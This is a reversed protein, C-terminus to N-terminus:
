VKREYRIRDHFMGNYVKLFSAEIRKLDKFMLPSDDLQGGTFISHTVKKILIQISDVTKETEDMSKVAAEVCDALMVIAAEKTLPKPGDYCFIGRDIEFGDSHEIAKTYFYSILADGQHQIIIDKIADPLKYEKALAVGDTIHRKIYQASADPSLEDHINYGRQNEIFYEPNSLKGIDHYMAGTRALHHDIKLDAAAKEALNAVLMSHHYTGPAELLLRQLLPENSNSLEILRASSTIRFVTEWIPETGYVLIVVLFGNMGALLIQVPSVSLPTGVVSLELLLELLSLVLFNSLATYVVKQRNNAFPLTIAVFSGGVAYFVLINLDMTKTISLLVLMVFNIFFGLRVHIMSTILATMLLLTLMHLKLETLYLSPIYGLVVFSWFLLQRKQEKLIQDLYLFYIILFIMSVTLLLFINVILYRLNIANLILQIMSLLVVFFLSVLPVVHLFSRKLYM